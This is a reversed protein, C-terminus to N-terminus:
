IAREYHEGCVGEEEGPGGARSEFYFKGDGFIGGAPGSEEDVHSGAMARRGLDGSTGRVAVAFYWEHRFIEGVRGVLGECVTDLQFDCGCQDSLSVGC